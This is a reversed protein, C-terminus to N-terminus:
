HLCKSPFSPPTSHTWMKQGFGSYNLSLPSYTNICTPSIHTNTLHTWVESKRISLTWNIYTQYVNINLLKNMLDQYCLSKNYELEQETVIVLGCECM